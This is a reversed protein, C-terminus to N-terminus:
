RGSAATGKEISANLWAAYSMSNRENLSVDRLGQIFSSVLQTFSSHMESDDPFAEFAISTYPKGNMWLDTVELTAGRDIQSEPNVERATRSQPDLALKRLCRKKFVEIVGAKPTFWGAFRRDISKGKYSWKIWREVRGIAANTFQQTGLDCLLGKLQLQGERWKIGMDASGPIVIYVDPRGGRRRNWVPSPVSGAKEIPYFHKVWAEVTPFSKVPGDLFWRVEHSALM